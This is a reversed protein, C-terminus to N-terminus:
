PASKGVFQEIWQYTDSDVAWATFTRAVGSNMYMIVTYGDMSEGNEIVGNLNDQAFLKCFKELEDKQDWSLMRGAIMFYDVNQLMTEADTCIWLTDKMWRTTNECNEWIELYVTLGSHYELHVYGMYIEDYKGAPLGLNGEQGDEWLARLLAALEAEGVRMGEVYASAVKNVLWDLSDAHLIQQPNSFVLKHIQKQAQGGEAARYQRYIERGDKMTYCITISQWGDNDPRSGTPGEAYLLKHIEILAEIEAPDTLEGDTNYDTFESVMSNAVKVSVVDGADPTWSILGFADIHCLGVGGFVLAFMLVLALWNKWKFVRLSRSLLMQSTFYGVILGIMLFIYFPVGMQDGMMELLAGVCLTYVVAFVPKMPKFAMFDGASELPRKRYLLLAAAALVGGLVALIILYNWSEGWGGWHRIHPASYDYYHEFRCWCNQDHIISFYEQEQFLGVVPSFPAFIEPRIVVGYLMPEFITTCFWLVIMSLFNLILYVAVSAFRNGTAMMCLAALGFFFLYHLEMGLLLVFATYWVDGSALLQAMLALAILLNPVLSFLMGATFHTFFWGERRLPMAHLANCLRTNFLDGFLLEAAFMAYFFSVVGLGGMWENLEGSNSGTSLAIMLGGILYLAWLPAFRTIDKKLVTRDFFSTRLKM